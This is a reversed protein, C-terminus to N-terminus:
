YTKHLTCITFGWSTVYVLIEFCGAAAMEMTLSHALCFLMKEGKMNMRNKGVLLVARRLLGPAGVAVSMVGTGM